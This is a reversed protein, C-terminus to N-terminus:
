PERWETNPCHQWIVDGASLLVARIDVDRAGFGEGIRLDLKRGAAPPPTPTADAAFSAPTASLLLATFARRTLNMGPPLTRRLHRKLNPRRAKPSWRRPM